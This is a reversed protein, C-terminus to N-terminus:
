LRCDRAIRTTIANQEKSFSKPRKTDSSTTELRKKCDSQPRDEYYLTKQQTPTILTRKTSHLTLDEQLNEFSVSYSSTTMASIGSMLFSCKKSRRIEVRTDNLVSLYTVAVKSYLGTSYSNLFTTVRSNENSSM